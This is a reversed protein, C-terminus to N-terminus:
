KTKIDLKDFILRLLVLRRRIAGIPLIAATFVAYPTHWLRSARRIKQAAVAALFYAPLIDTGWQAV